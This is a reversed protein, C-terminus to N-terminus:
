KFDQIWVIGKTQLESAESNSLMGQRLTLIKRGTRVDYYDGYIYENKSEHRLCMDNKIWQIIYTKAYKAIRENSRIYASYQRPRIRSIPVHEAHYLEGDKLVYVKSM